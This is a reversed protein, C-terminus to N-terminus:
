QHTLPLVNLKLKTSQQTRKFGHLFAKLLYVNRAISRRHEESKEDGALATTLHTLSTSCWV